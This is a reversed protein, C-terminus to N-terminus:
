SDLPLSLSLSSSLSLSLSTPREEKKQQSDFDSSLFLKNACAKTAIAVEEPAHLCLVSLYQRCKFLNFIFTFTSSAFILTGEFCHM